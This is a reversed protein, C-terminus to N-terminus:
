PKAAKEAERAERVKQARIKAEIEARADAAFEAKAEEVTQVDLRVIFSPDGSGSGSVGSNGDRDVTLYTTWVFPEGEDYETVEVLIAAIPWVYWALEDGYLYANLEIWGDGSLIQRDKKVVRRQQM